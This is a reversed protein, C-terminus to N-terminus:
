ILDSSNCILFTMMTLKGWLVWRANTAFFDTVEPENIAIRVLEDDLVTSTLATCVLIGFALNFLRYSAQTSNFCGVINEAM